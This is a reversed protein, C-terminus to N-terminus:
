PRKPGVVVLAPAPVQYTGGKEFAAIRQRLSQRIAALAEASQGRLAAAARVTGSLFADIIEDPSGVRWVLPVESATVDV